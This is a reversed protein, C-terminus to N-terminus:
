TTEDLNTLNTYVGVHSEVIKEEEREQASRWIKKQLNQHFYGSLLTAVGELHKELKPLNPHFYLKTPHTIVKNYFV